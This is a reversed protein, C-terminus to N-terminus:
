APGFRLDISLRPVHLRQNPCARHLTGASVLLVDGPELTAVRWHPVAGRQTGPAVALVGDVPACRHLPLWASWVGDAAHLFESDRHPLTAPVRHSPPAIRCVSGLGGRAPRGLLGAVLALLQPAQVLADFAPQAWLRAQLEIWGPVEHAAAAAGGSWRGRADLLGQARGAEVVARRLAAVRAAPLVSRVLLVGDRGARRRLAPDDRQTERLPRLTFAPKWATWGLWREPRWSRLDAQAAAARIRRGREHADVGPWMAATLPPLLLWDRWAAQTLRQRHQWVQPELGAARLAQEIQAADPPPLRRPAAPCAPHCATAAALLATLYPDAGGGPGDPQGVYAAPVDFVLAGGPALRAALRRLLAPWRPWQWIAAGCVIRDYREGECAALSAHWRVRDDDGLRARGAAAMAAAPEVCDVRGAPGLAPLLAATTGGTGAALDLVRLGPALAAHAALAENARRYRSHRREFVRYRRATLPDDWPSPKM